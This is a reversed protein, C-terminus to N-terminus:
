FRRIDLFVSNRSFLTTKTDATQSKDPVYSGRIALSVKIQLENMFKLQYIYVHHCFIKRNQLSYTHIEPVVLSYINQYLSKSMKM